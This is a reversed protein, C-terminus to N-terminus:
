LRSERLEDRLEDGIDHAALTPRQGTGNCDPCWRHLQYPLMPYLYEHRPVKVKGTGECTECGPPERHEGPM